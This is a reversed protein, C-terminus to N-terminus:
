TTTSPSRRAPGTGTSTASRSTRWIVASRATSRQWPRCALFRHRTVALRCCRTRHQRLVHGGGDNALLADVRPGGDLHHLVGLADIEGAGLLDVASKVKSAGASAVSM